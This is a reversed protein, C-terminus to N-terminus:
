STVQLRDNLGLRINKLTKMKYMASYDVKINIFIFMKLRRSTNHFAGFLMQINYKDRSPMHMQKQKTKKHENKLKHQNKLYGIKRTQNQHSFNPMQFFSCLFRPM